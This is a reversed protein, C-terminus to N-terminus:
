TVKLNLIPLISPMKMNTERCEKEIERKLKIRKIRGFRGFSSFSYIFYQYILTKNQFTLRGFVKWYGELVKKFATKIL